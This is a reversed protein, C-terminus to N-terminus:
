KKHQSLYFIDSIYTKKEYQWIDASTDTNFIGDLNEFHFYRSVLYM